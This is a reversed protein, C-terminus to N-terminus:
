PLCTSSWCIVVRGATAASDAAGGQGAGNRDTDANGGPASAVGTEVTVSTLGADVIQFGAGGGGGVSQGAGGSVSMAYVIVNGYADIADDESLGLTAWPVTGVNNTTDSCATAVGDGAAGSAPCPLRYDAQRIAHLVIAQNVKELASANGSINNIEDRPGTFNLLVATAFAAALTATAIVATLVVIGSEEDRAERLHRLLIKQARKLM